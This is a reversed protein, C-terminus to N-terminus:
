YKLYIKKGQKNYYYAPEKGPFDFARILRTLDKIEEIDKRKYTKYQQDPQVVAKYELSSMSIFNNKFIEFAVNELKLYLAGATENPDIPVKEILIIDGADIESNMLHLTIGTEVEKNIIAWNITCSGKYKPLIGAHLNFGVGGRSFFDKPIKKNHFASIVIDADDLVNVITCFQPHKDKAWAFCKEGLTSTRTILIKKM